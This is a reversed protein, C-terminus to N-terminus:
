LNKATVAGNRYAERLPFAVVSKLFVLPMQCHSGLGVVDGMAGDVRASRAAPFPSSRMRLRAILWSLRM